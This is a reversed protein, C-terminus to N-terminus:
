YPRPLFSGQLTSHYPESGIPLDIFPIIAKYRFSSPEDTTSLHVLNVYRYSCIQGDSPCIVLSPAIVTEKREERDGNEKMGKDTM